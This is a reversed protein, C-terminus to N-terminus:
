LNIEADFIYGCECSVIDREKHDTVFHEPRTHCRPCILYMKGYEFLEERAKRTLARAEPSLLEEISRNSRSM